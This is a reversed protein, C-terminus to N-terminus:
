FPAQQGAAPLQPNQIGSTTGPEVIPQITPWEPTERISKRIWEHLSNWHEISPSEIDFYMIKNRLPPMAEVEAQTLPFVNQVFEYMNGTAQSPKHGITCTAGWNLLKALDINNMEEESLQKGKISDLFQLLGSRKGTKSISLVFNHEVKVVFPQQGKQQDFVHNTNVLELFFLIKRSPQYQPNRSKQTGMDVIGGFRFKHIGEPALVKPPASRKPPKM